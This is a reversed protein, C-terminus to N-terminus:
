IKSRWEKIVNYCESGCKDIIKELEPFFMFSQECCCDCFPLVDKINLQNDPLLSMLKGPPTLRQFKVCCSCLDRQCIICINISKDDHLLIDCFDCTIEQVKRETRM